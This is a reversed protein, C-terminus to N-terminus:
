PEVEDPECGIPGTCGEDDYTDPGTALGDGCDPCWGDPGVENGCEPCYRERDM